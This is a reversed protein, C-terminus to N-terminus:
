TEIMDSNCQGAPMVESVRHLKAERGGDKDAESLYVASQRSSWQVHMAKYLLM